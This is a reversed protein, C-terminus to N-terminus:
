HAYCELTQSTEAFGILGFWKIRSKSSCVAKILNFFAGFTTIVSKRHSAEFVSSIYAPTVKVCVSKRENQQGVSKSARNNLQKIWQTGKLLRTKVLSEPFGTKRYVCAWIVALNIVQWRPLALCHLLLWICKLPFLENKVGM